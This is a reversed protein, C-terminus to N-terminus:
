RGHPSPPPPEELQEAQLVLYFPLDARMKRGLPNGVAFLGPASLAQVDDDSLSQFHAACHTADGEVGVARLLTTNFNGVGVFGAGLVEALALDAPSAVGDVSLGDSLTTIFTVDPM